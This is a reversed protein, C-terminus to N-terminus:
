TTEQNALSARTSNPLTGFIRSSPSPSESKIVSYIMSSDQTRSLPGTNRSDIKFQKKTPLEMHMNIQQIKTFTDYFRNSTINMYQSQEDYPQTVRRQKFIDQVPLSKKM